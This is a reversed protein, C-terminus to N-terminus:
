INQVKAYIIRIKRHWEEELLSGMQGWFQLRHPFFVKFLGRQGGWPFFWTLTLLALCSTYMVFFVCTFSLSCVLWIVTFLSMNSHCVFCLFFFVFGLWVPNEVIGEFLSSISM